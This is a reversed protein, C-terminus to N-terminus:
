QSYEVDLSGYLANPTINLAKLAAKELNRTSGSDGFELWFLM